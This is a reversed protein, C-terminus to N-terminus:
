IEINLLCYDFFFRDFYLKMKYKKDNKYFQASRIQYTIKKTLYFSYTEKNIISISWIIIIAKKQMIPNSEHNFYEILILHTHM